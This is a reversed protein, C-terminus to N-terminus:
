RIELTANYINLYNYFNTILKVKQEHYKKYENIKHAIFSNFRAQKLVTEIYTNPKM